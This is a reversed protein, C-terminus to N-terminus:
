SENIWINELISFYKYKLEIEGCFVVFLWVGPIGHACLRCISFTLKPRSTLLFPENETSNENGTSHKQPIQSWFLMTRSWLVYQIPVTTKHRSLLFHSKSGKNFRWIHSIFSILIMRSTWFRLLDRHFWQMSLLPSRLFGCKLM